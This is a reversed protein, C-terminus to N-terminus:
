RIAAAANFLTSGLVGLAASRARALADSGNLSLRFTLDTEVVFGLRVLARLADVDRSNFRSASADPAMLLATLLTHVKNPTLALSVDTNTM